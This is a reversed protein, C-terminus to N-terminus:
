NLVESHGAAAAYQTMMGDWPAGNEHAWKLVEFHGGDAAYTCTKKNWPCGNAHAWQLVELHGGMAANTCTGGSWPCGHERLWKLVELHGEFAAHPSTNTDWPYDNTHLWQLVELHGGFAAHGCLYSEDLFLFNGSKPLRGKRHLHQLTSLCGDAAASKSDLEKIERGIAAVADRMGRSVARLRALDIAYPLRDPSLVHTLVLDLPLGPFAEPPDSQAAANSAAVRRKRREAGSKKRFM